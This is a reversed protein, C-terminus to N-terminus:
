PGIGFIYFSQQQHHLEQMIEYALVGPITTTYYRHPSTPNRDDVTYPGVPILGVHKLNGHVHTLDPLLVAGFPEPGSDTGVHDPGLARLNRFRANPHNQTSSSSTPLINCSQYGHEFCRRRVGVARNMYAWSRAPLTSVAFHTCRLLRSYETEDICNLLM